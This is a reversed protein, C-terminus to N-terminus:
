GLFNVGPRNHGKELGIFDETEGHFCIKLSDKVIRVVRGIERSLNKYSIIIALYPGKVYLDPGPAFCAPLFINAPKRWEPYFEGFFPRFIGWEFPLPSYLEHSM